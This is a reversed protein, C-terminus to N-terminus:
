YGGLGIIEGIGSTGLNGVQSLVTAGADTSLYVANNVGWLYFLDGDDGAIAGRRVDTGDPLLVTWTPSAAGANDSRFVSFTDATVARIGIFLMRQRNGVYTDMTQRSRYPAYSSGSVFPAINTATVGDARYLDGTGAVATVEYYMIHEGTNDNYPVHIHQALVYSPQFNPNNTTAWTAGYNSSVFCSSTAAGESGTATHATTYVRGPTLSSVYCGPRPENGVTEYYSSVVVETFTTNNTTYLAKTGGSGYYSVCVFHGSAAFSADASRFSSTVAFTHKLTWTGTLSGYYVGTTTVIWGSGPEFGNPVWQLITGSVSLSTWTVYSWSTLDNDGFNTTLARGSGGVLAIRKTGKYLHVAEVTGPGVPPQFPPFDFGPPTYPPLGNDSEQPPVYTVGAVGNTATRLTWVVQMTGEDGVQPRVSKLVFLQGSLDLGRLETTLNIAVYEDYFDAVHYGTPLTIELDLAMQLAGNADVYIGDNSAGIRGARNNLDAQGGGSNAIKREVAINDGGTGPALGPWRSFIPQPSSGATFGRVELMEVPRWHERTYQWSVIDSTTLTITKTAAARSAVALLEPRTHLSFRGTRDCTIRADTGDALEREQALPTSRQLFLQPYTFDVYSSDTVFDFGAEGANAYFQWLQRIARETGLTKMESWTNPTADSTMVKSYGVLEVLRAMPSIVEFRLEEVGTESEFSGTERRIYGVGLIHSRGSSKAGFAQVSGNLYQEMWLICFAGDPIDTLSANALVRVGFSHGNEEDGSIDEIVVEYPPSAADHAIIGPYQTTSKSNDADTVVHTVLYEGADIATVNPDADSTSSGTVGTPWTWAHTLPGNSDPDVWDSLSGTYPIPTLATVWSAWGAWWGGSCAIPPPNSGQDSYSLDDPNFAATATVLKDSLRVDNYVKVVDGTAFPIYGYSHERIPLNTSSITGAYRIRTRGRFAGGSTYVDVRFGAKVDSASGDVVTITLNFAPYSSPATVTAELVETGRYVSLYVAASAGPTRLTTLNPTQSPM